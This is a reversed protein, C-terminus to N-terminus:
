PTPEKVAERGADTLEFRVLWYPDNPLRGSQVVFGRNLLARVTARSISLFEAGRIWYHGSYTDGRLGRGPSSALQLLQAQTPSLRRM